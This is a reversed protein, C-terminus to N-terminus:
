TLVPLYWVGSVTFWCQSAVSEHRVLMIMILIRRLYETLVVGLMSRLSLHQIGIRFAVDLQSVILQYLKCWGCQNSYSSLISRDFVTKLGVPTNLGGFIHELRGRIDVRKPLPM